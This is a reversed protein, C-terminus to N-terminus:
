TSDREPPQQDRWRRSGATGAPLAAAEQAGSRRHPRRGEQFDVAEGRYRILLEGDARELVDVRLGAYSPRDVEPLLQLVRWQYVIVGDWHGLIEAGKVFCGLSDSLCCRSSQRMCAVPSYEM